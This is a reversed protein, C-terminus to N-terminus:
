GREGIAESAVRAGGVRSERYTIYVTSAFIISGGALTWWSPFESFILFGLLSAWILKTFDYPMIASAEARSMAQAVMYHSLSGLAGIAFMWLLQELTPWQWVLIAPITMVAMVMTTGIATITVSSDTASLSKIAIMMGALTAAAIMMLMSGNDISGDAPRVIILMGIFGLALAFIRRSRIREGLLFVAFVTAFLPATFMLASAKALPVQSIGFFFCTMSVVQCATRILHMPLRQTRYAGAGNRLILPLLVLVGFFCRFFAVEFPHLDATTIRIIAHMLSVQAGVSVMMLAALTAAPMRDFFASLRAIM